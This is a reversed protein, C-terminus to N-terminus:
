FLPTPPQVNVMALQSKINQRFFIANFHTSSPSSPPLRRCQHLFKNSILSPNFLSSILQNMHTHTYFLHNMNEFTNCSQSFIHHYRSKRIIWIMLRKSSNGSEHVEWCLHIFIAYRRLSHSM